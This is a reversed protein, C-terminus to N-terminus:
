LHWFQGSSILSRLLHKILKSTYKANSNTIILFQEVKVNLTITSLKQPYRFKEYRKTLIWPQLKYCELIYGVLREWIEKLGIM